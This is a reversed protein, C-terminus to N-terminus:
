KQTIEIAAINGEFHYLIRAIGISLANTTMPTFLTFYQTATPAPSRFDAISAWM